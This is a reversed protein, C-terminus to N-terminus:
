IRKRECYSRPQDYTTHVKHDVTGESGEVRSEPGSSESVVCDVSVQSEGSVCVVVGSAELQSMKQLLRGSHGNSAGKNM